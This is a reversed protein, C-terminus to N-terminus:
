IKTRLFFLRLCICPTYYVGQYSTFLLVKNWKKELAWVSFCSILWYLIFSGFCFLLFDVVFFPPWLSHAQFHSYIPLSSDYLFMGIITNQQGIRSFKLRVLVFFVQHFGPTWGVVYCIVSALRRTAHMRRRQSVATALYKSNHSFVCHTVAERSYNFTAETILSISDLIHVTGSSM